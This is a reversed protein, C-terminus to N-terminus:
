ARHRRLSGLRRGVAARACRLVSSYAGERGARHAEPDASKGKLRAVQETLQRNKGQLREVRAQTRELRERTAKAREQAAWLESAREDAYGRFRELDARLASIVTAACRPYRALGREFLDTGDVQDAEALATYIALARGRLPTLDLDSDAFLRLAADAFGLQALGYRRTRALSDAATGSWVGGAHRRYTAMPRDLFGIGGARAHFLHLFWDLPMADTPLDAYDRRRYMVSNTQIFNRSLLREVTWETSEGPDPFRLDDEPAQEDLIRVPHFCLGLDPRSDLLEVQRALKTPDTWFDDGECLAVYEGRVERLAAVVNTVVGVNKGRLIPRIQPYRHAYQRIMDATRDDSHDDSVILEVDFDTQQALVSDLTQELFQEQNYTVTVVSVKPQNM